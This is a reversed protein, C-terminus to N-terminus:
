AFPNLSDLHERYQFLAAAESELYRAIANRMGPHRIYHFSHTRTPLFGRRIKHEGQAGPEFAQLRNRICFEIGQYYCAEFHVDRCDVLSGWYRGYLRQNDHWFIAAALPQGNREALCVQFRDGFRAAAEAFFPRNLSPHNGYLQFTTLYCEAVLDIDAASLENGAKWQLRWGAEAVKRREARINKRAKRRFRELFDDFDRYGSNQWHFQWDFRELWGASRLIEAEEWRCFNVGASSLGNQHVTEVLTEVLARAGTPDANVGLLRPGTVPTFPAAVLLKPYWAMGSQHAARAWAWDFVFEGHSHRKIWAPAASRIQGGDQCTLFFPQWGSSGGVCGARQVSDLFDWDIFPGPNAELSQWIQRAPLPRHADLFSDPQPITM